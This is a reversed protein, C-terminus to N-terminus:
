ANLGSGLVRRLNDMYFYGGGAFSVGSGSTPSPPLDKEARVRLTEPDILLLTQADEGPNTPSPGVRITLIQGRSNFAM